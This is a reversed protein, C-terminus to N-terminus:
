KEPEVNYYTLLFKMVESFAPAASSEAWIVDKPNTIKVVVTFKPDEIPAIGAFSGITIDDEYGKEGSKAVQATGTKGGVSYGPVSARKGHGNKVVSKLMKIMKQSTEPKIVERLVEEEFFKEKGDPYIIKDVIKPKMLKGGNAIASYANALQIPTATLGQGYAATFFQIDRNLYSLNRIDGSSEGPLPVGTQEGFGFRRIYEAFRKNGILKEIFIVGTNLSKELVQTMNQEGYAKFDSNEIEYGAEYVIGTDMYTSSPEIVGSDIGAALTITKFVSGTEYANSVSSNIFHSMDEVEGFKNPSFDPFNAMALIKGTKVEQVVISGEDAEHKKAFEKLIKETEYQVDENITLVMDVGNQAPVLDREAISIWRGLSDREQSLKGNEGKLDEEWFSEIGYMGRLKEGDSGVFGVVHSALEEGPYYRFTESTIKVGQLDLKRIKEAEEESVKRKLIEFMDEPDSLKEKVESRALGLIHSVDKIVSDRDEVLKPELFVMLYDRNVALPYNGKKNKLYVEGRKATIESFARHQGEAIAIYKSHNTIQLVYLRLFVVAGLVVISAALIYLRQGGVSFNKNKRKSALRSHM